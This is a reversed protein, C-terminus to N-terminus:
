APNEPPQEPDDEAGEAQESFDGGESTETQPAAFTYFSDPVTLPGEKFYAKGPMSIDLYGTAQKGEKDLM